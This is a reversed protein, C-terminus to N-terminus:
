EPCLDKIETTTDPPIDPHGLPRYKDPWFAGPFMIAVEHCHWTKSGNSSRRQIWEHVVIERRPPNFWTAADQNQSITKRASSDNGYSVARVAVVTDGKIALLDAFGFLSQHEVDTWREVVAVLYGESRLKNLSLQTPTMATDILTQEISNTM